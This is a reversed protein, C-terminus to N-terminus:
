NTALIVHLIAQYTASEWNANSDPAVIVKYVFAQGNAGGSTKTTFAATLATGLTTPVTQSVIKETSLTATDNFSFTYPIISPNGQSVYASGDWVRLFSSDAWVQFKWSNHNSRIMATASVTKGSLDIPGLDINSISVFILNTDVSASVKVDASQASAFGIAIFSVACVLALKKM